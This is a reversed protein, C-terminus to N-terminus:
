VVHVRWFDRLCATDRRGRRGMDLAELTHSGQNPQPKTKSIYTPWGHLISGTFHFSEFFLL